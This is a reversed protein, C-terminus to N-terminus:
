MSSVYPSWSRLATKVNAMLTAVGYCALDVGGRLREHIGAPKLHPADLDEVVRGVVSGLAEDSSSSIPLWTGMLADWRKPGLKARCAEAAAADAMLARLARAESSADFGKAAELRRYEADQAHMEAITQDDYEAPAAASASATNEIPAVATTCSEEPSGAACSEEPSSAPAGISSAVLLALLSVPLCRMAGAIIVECFWKEFERRSAEVFNAKGRKGYGM